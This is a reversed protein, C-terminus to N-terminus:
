TVLINSDPIETDILLKNNSKCFYLEGQSSAQSKTSSTMNYLDDIDQSRRNILVSSYKSYFNIPNKAWRSVPRSNNASSERNGSLNSDNDENTSNFIDCRDLFDKALYPLDNEDEEPNDFDQADDQHTEVM